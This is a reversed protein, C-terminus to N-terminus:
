LTPPELGELRAFEIIDKVRSRISFKSYLNKNIPSVDSSKLIANIFSKEDNEEYFIINESYPLQRHAPFNVGVIKVEAALYEFYKLPSTFRISHQNSNKNVLLGISSSKLLSVAEVHNLRGYIKINGQNTINYKKSLEESYENPGGVIKLNYDKLLNNNFCKIIFEIDRSENFRKLEGIFIVENSTKIPTDEFLNQNYGNQLVISNLQSKFISRYYNKLDETLFIVKSSNKKSAKKLIWRRIKSTQHVEFIVNTKKLSLLLFVWDSRTMVTMANYASNLYKVAKIAWIIHLVHYNVRKFLKFKEFPLKHELKFVKFNVDFGYYKKLLNIDDSSNCMRDPFILTVDIGQRTLEVVNTITQLSNATNAPFNQYTLYILKNNLM